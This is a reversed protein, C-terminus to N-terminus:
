EGGQTRRGIESLIADFPALLSGVDAVDPFAQRAIGGVQGYLATPSFGLLRERDENPVLHRVMLAALLAGTRDGNALMTQGLWDLHEAATKAAREQVEPPVVTMSFTGFGSMPPVENTAYDPPGSAVRMGMQQRLINRLDNVIWYDLVRGILQYTNDDLLQDLTFQLIPPGMQVRGDADWGIAPRHTMDTKGPEGPVLTLREPLQTMVAAQFRAKLQYVSFRAAKKDVTCLLLPAPYQLIWAVSGPKDFIWPDRTSKVQVSYYAYPEARGDRRQTLTCFLDLGYDEQHPVLTATGFMSFVYQALYESRSGQYLNAAVAGPSPM